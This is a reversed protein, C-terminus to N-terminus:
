LENILKVKEIIYKEILQKRALSIEDISNLISRISEINLNKNINNLNNSFDNRNDKLYKMVELHTPEKKNYKDIRIRSKSKTIVLSKFRVKDNGLYDNIKDEKIYACLSSGNDYIPSLGIINGDKKLVGWNSPHRDTNGIIYDFFMIKIFQEIIQPYSELSNLIMELSYYEKIKSDYLKDPDYNPYKLNILNIGEILEENDKLINYSM